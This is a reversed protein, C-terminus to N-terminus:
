SEPEEAIQKADLRQQKKRQMEVKQMEYEKQMKLRNM